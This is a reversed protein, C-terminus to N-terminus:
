SKIQVEKGTTTRSTQLSVYGGHSDELLEEIQSKLNQLMLMEAVTTGESHLIENGQTNTLVYSEDNGLALKVKELISPVNAESETFRVVVVRSSVLRGDQIESSHISKISDFEENRTLILREGGGAENKGRIRNM